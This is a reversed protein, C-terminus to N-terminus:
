SHPVWGLGKRLKRGSEGERGGGRRGDEGESGAM